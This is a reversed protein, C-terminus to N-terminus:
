ESEIYSMFVDISRYTTCIAHIQKGKLKDVIHIIDDRISDYKPQKWIGTLFVAGCPMTNFEEISRYKGNTFDDSLAKINDRIRKETGVDYQNAHSYAEQWPNNPLKKKGTEDRGSVKKELGNMALCVKKAHTVGISGITGAKSEMLWEMEDKSYYGDFGKKISNEELNLFLCEQRYGKLRIYLHVFFEAIAGTIWDETKSSFLNRVRKKVTSISSGSNGECILVFYEDLLQKMALDMNVIDIFTLTCNPTIDYEQFTLPSM